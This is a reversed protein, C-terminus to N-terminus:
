SAESAVPAPFLRVAEGAGEVASGIGLASLLNTCDKKSLYTFIGAALIARSPGDLSSGIFSGRGAQALVEALFPSLLCLILVM